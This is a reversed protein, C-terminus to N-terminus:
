LIKQQFVALMELVQPAYQLYKEKDGSRGIDNLASTAKSAIEQAAERITIAGDDSKDTADETPVARYIDMKRESRERQSTM